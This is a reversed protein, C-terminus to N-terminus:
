DQFSVQLNLGMGIFLVGSETTKLAGGLTQRCSPLEGTQWSNLVAVEGIARTLIYASELHLAAGASAEGVYEVVRVNWCTLADLVTYGHPVTLHQSITLTRYRTLHSM